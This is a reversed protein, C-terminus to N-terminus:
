PTRPYWASQLQPRLYISVGHTTSTCTRTFLSHLRGFGAERREWGPLLLDTLAVYETADLDLSRIWREVRERTAIPSLMPPPFAATTTISLIAGSSPNVLLSIGSRRKEALQARLIGPIEPRLSEIDVELSLLRLVTATAPENWGPLEYYVKCGARGNRSVGFGVEQPFGVRNLHRLIVDLEDSIPIGSSVLM